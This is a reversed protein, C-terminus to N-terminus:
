FWMAALPLPLPDNAPRKWATKLRAYAAKAANSETSGSDIIAQIYDHTAHVPLTPPLSAPLAARAKALETAAAPDRMLALLYAHRGRFGAHTRTAGEKTEVYYREVAAYGERAKSLEGALVDTNAQRGVLGIASDKRALAPNRVLAECRAMAEAAEAPKRLTQALNTLEAFLGMADRNQTDKFAQARQMLVKFRTEAEATPLGGLLEYILVDKDIHLVKIDGAGLRRAWLGSGERARAAAEAYRGTESYYTGLHVRVNAGMNSDPGLLADVKQLTGLLRQEIGTYDGMRMQVWAINSRVQLTTRQKDAPVLDLKPELALYVAQADPLDRRNTYYAALDNEAAVQAEINHPAEKQLRAIEAKYAAVAEEHRGLGALARAVHARSTALNGDDPPLLPTLVAIAEQAHSLAAEHQTTLNELVAQQGLAEGYERSTKGHLTAALATVTPALATAEQHRTLNTYVEVVSALLRHQARPDETFRTPVDKSARELLTLVTPWEGSHTDPNASGLMESFYDVLKASRAAEDLAQQRQWLALSLGSVLAILVAATAAALVRNRRLWLATRRTWPTAAAALPRHDLWRQLDDILGAVSAYRDQPQRQLAKELVPVLGLGLAADAPRDATSYAALATRLPQPALHLVAHEIAARSTEGPAFPRQGSLLQHLLVGLAFVDAPAGAPEGAIQEPAAYGPTLARGTLKTLTHDDEIHDDDLLTAIGFDLLKVVGDPTVLINSPKLDRHAVLQGHAYEVAQAAALLLRVRQTVTAKQAAAHDLLPAGPVYELVLYPQGEAVGADLLRAIGPHHLRALVRRERAFRDALQAAALGSRIFKLAAEGEYLGDKRAALWVEGMGGQGLPRLLLWPGFQQGHTRGDGMHTADSVWQQFAPSATTGQELAAQAVEAKQLLGTLATGAEADRAVLAALWAARAAPALDLAEDLLGSYRAWDAANM